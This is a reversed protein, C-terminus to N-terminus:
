PQEKMVVRFGLNARPRNKKINTRWACRCEFGDNLWGGGRAVRLNSNQSLWASGDVPAGDYDEHWGDLCWEMVNGHMDYLGFKNAVDQSGVPTTGGRYEVKPAAGYPNNSEYNVLDSTITAGFAFPTTTGARCAYEWEAETPLSYKRGTLRSLREVFETAADWTVLEVPYRDDGQFESPNSGMAKRWQAQTVEFKGMFFSPVKVSHQPLETTFSEKGLDATKKSIEFAHEVDSETSGMLFTGGQIWVMELTVGDGLDETFYQGLDKRRITENGNADVRVNDFTFSQLNPSKQPHEVRRTRQEHEILQKPRLWEQLLPKLIVILALLIGAIVAVVRIILAWGLSKKTELSDTKPQARFANRFIGSLANKMVINVNNDGVINGDGTINIGAQRAERAVDLVESRPLARLREVLATQDPESLKGEIADVLMQPTIEM